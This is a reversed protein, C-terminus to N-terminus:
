KISIAKSVTKSLQLAVNNPSMVHNLTALNINEIIKKIDFTIHIHETNTIPFELPQLTNFPSQYGGLHFQFENNRTDCLKSKGELKCNIYGSQWSWYMGKTPDLDGGMAGSVTTISDIGLNFNLQDFVINQTNPIIIQLSKPDSADVLHFSNQEELVIIGTKLFQFHSVYFKFLDIQLNNSDNTFFSSDALDVVNAGYTPSISIYMATNTQASIFSVSLILVIVFIISLNKM